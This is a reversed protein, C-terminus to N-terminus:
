LRVPEGGPLRVAAADPDPAPFLVIAGGPESFRTRSGTELDIVANEDDLIELPQEEGDPPHSFDFVPGLTAVGDAGVSLSLFRRPYGPLILSPATNVEQIRELLGAYTYDSVWAPSCYSMFDKVTTPNKLQHNLLDLGWVGIQAKPYPYSKDSPQGGLGCPAHERGHAHGVEHIATSVSEPGQYGLGVSARSSAGFPGSGGLPSMGAVCGAACYKAFTAAPTVLAYYYEDDAAGRKSREAMFGTVIEQWGLGVPSVVKKWDFPPGVTVELSSAPYESFFGNEFLKMQPESTDPLRGSGDANYRVPVVVIKLPGAAQTEIVGVGEGPWRAQDTSGEFDGGDPPDDEELLAVTYSVTGTLYDGPIDVNLTTGLAQDVSDSLVQGVAEIPDRPATESPFEVRVRVKRNVFGSERKVFVRLYAAKGQVVAVGPEAVEEREEVLPVEVSQYLAIGRIALGAVYRPGTDEDKPHSSEDCALFLLAILLVPSGRPM